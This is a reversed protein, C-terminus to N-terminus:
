SRRDTLFLCGSVIMTYYDGEEEESYDLSWTSNSGDPDSHSLLGDVCMDSMSYM